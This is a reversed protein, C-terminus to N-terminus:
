GTFAPNHFTRWFQDAFKFHLNNFHKFRSMQKNAFRKPAKMTGVTLTGPSKIMKASAKMKMEAEAVTMNVIVIVSETVIVTVTVIATVTVVVTVTVIVTVIVVVKTNAIDAKKRKMKGAPGIKTVTGNLM